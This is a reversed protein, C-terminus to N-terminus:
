NTKGRVQIYACGLLNAKEEISLACFKEEFCDPCLTKGEWEFMREGPYVEHSCMAILYVEDFPEMSHEPELTM